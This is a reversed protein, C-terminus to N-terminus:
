GSQQPNSTSDEAKKPMVQDILTNVLAKLLSYISSAKINEKTGLIESVVFLVFMAITIPTVHNKVQDFVQSVDM